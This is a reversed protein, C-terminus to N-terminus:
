HQQIDQNPPTVSPQENQPTGSPPENQSTGSPQENQNPASGPQGPNGQGQGESGGMAMGTSVDSYSIGDLAVSVSKDGCTVTLSSGSTMEPTSVVVCGFSEAPYYSAVVNGKSDTVEVTDGANGSLTVLASGQTSEDGFGQAMGTSGAAIVTGGTITATGAYDLAGNGDNTPGSVYTEGGTVTLSGNTDIGDGEANVKLTGGSILVYATEDAQGMTGGAQDRSPTNEEPQQMASQSADETSANSEEADDQSAGSANIGDDSAVIQIDGGQITVEAGELGEYSEAVNISGGLVILDEDSHMGDDGAVIEYTGDNVALVGKAQLADVKSNVTITGSVLSLDDKAVIGHGCASTAALSGGGNITLDEHSWVVGDLNHEDEEQDEGTATLSNTSGDALTLFVKDASRVYLACSQTTAVSVGDLVLQVKADEAADVVIRGDSLSGSIIYTGERTITVESGNIEVGSGDTTSGEDSLNIRTSASEDYSADLDRESFLDSVAGETKASGTSSGDSDSSSEENSTSKSQSCGALPIAALACSLGLCLARTGARKFGSFSM